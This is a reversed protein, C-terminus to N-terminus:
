KKKIGELNRDFSLGKLYNAMFIFLLFTIVRNNLPSGNRNQICILDVMIVYNTMM